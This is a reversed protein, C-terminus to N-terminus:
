HSSKKARARLVLGLLGFALASTAWHGTMEAFIVGATWAILAWKM